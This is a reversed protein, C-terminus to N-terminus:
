YKINWGSKPQQSSSTGTNQPAQFGTYVQSQSQPQAPATTTSPLSPLPVETEKSAPKEATHDEDNSVDSADEPLSSSAPLEHTPETKPTSVAATPQQNQQNQADVSKKYDQPSQTSILPQRPVSATTQQAPAKFTIDQGYATVSIFGILVACISKFM